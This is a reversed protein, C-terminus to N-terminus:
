HQVDQVNQQNAEKRRKIKILNFNRLVWIEDNDNGLDNNLKEKQENLTRLQKRQSVTLDQNIFTKNNNKSRLLKNAKLAVQVTEKSNFEVLVLGPKGANVTSKNSLRTAKHVLKSDIKISTLLEKINNNDLNSTSGEELGFIIINKEKKKQLNAESNLANLVNQETESIKHINSPNKPPEFLSAYTKTKSNKKLEEIETKQNQILELLPKIAENILDNITSKQEQNFVM